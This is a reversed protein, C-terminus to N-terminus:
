TLEPVPRIKHVRSIAFTENIVQGMELQGSTLGRFRGAFVAADRQVADWDVNAMYHHFRRLHAVFDDPGGITLCKAFDTLQTLVANDLRKVLGVDLVAIK